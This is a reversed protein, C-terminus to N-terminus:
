GVEVLGYRRQWHMRLHQMVRHRDDVTIAPDTEMVIRAAETKALELLKRDRVLNAVRLGPMGEIKRVNSLLEDLVPSSLANSKEPRNLFIGAIGDKVRLEVM